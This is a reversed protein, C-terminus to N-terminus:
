GKSESLSGHHQAPRSRRRIRLVAIGAGMIAFAGLVILPLRISSSTGTTAGAPEGPSQAGTGSSANNPAAIAATAGPSAGATAAGAGPSEPTGATGPAVATSGTVTFRFSGTLPHGDRAVARWAVSYPGDPLEGNVSQTVTTGSVSSRGSEYRRRGADFVRVQTFSVTDNFTLTVQKPPRVTEGSGPSTSRLATHASAPFAILTAIVLVAALIVAGRIVTRPLGSAARGRHPSLAWQTPNTLTSIPTATM